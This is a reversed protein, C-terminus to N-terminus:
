KDKIENKLKKIEKKQQQYIQFLERIAFTLSKTNTIEYLKNVQNQSICIGITNKRDMSDIM